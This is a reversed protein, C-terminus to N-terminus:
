PAERARHGAGEALGAGARRRGGHPRRRADRPRVQGGRLPQAAQRVINEVARDTHETEADRLVYPVEALKISNAAAMRHFGAVLELDDDRERLVVPVLMGKLEISGVLAKVHEQDLVRVNDPIHIRAVAVTPTSAMTTTSM